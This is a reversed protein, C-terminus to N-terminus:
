TGYDQHSSFTDTTYTHCDREGDASVWYVPKMGLSELVEAQAIHRGLSRNEAHKFSDPAKKLDAAKM